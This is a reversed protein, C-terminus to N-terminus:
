GHMDSIYGYENDLYVIYSKHIAQFYVSSFSCPIQFFIHMSFYLVQVTIM